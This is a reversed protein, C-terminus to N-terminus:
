LEKLKAVLAPLSAQIHNWADTIRSAPSNALHRGVWEAVAAEIPDTAEVVPEAVPTVEASPATEPAIAPAEPALPEVPAAHAPEPAIETM